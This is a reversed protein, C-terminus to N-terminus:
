ATPWAPRSACWGHRPTASSSAVRRTRPPSGARADLLVLLMRDGPPRVVRRDQRRHLHFAKIVGPEIESYNVQKVEFGPLAAHTGATLRGLEILAGGDDAFRKLEVIEVGHIAPQPATTRCRSRASARRRRPEDSWGWRAATM